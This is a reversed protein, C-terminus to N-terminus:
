HHIASLKKFDVVFFHLFGIISLVGGFVRIVNWMIEDVPKSVYVDRATNSVTYSTYGIMTGLIAGSFVDGVHHFGYSIRHISIMSAVFYALAITCGKIYPDSFQIGLFVKDDDAYSDDELYMRLSTALAFAVMTHGSPFSQMRTKGKCHSEDILKDMKLKESCGPRIRKIHNKLYLGMSFAFWHPLLHFQVPHFSQYYFMSIMAVFMGPIVYLEYPLLGLYYPAKSIIPSSNLGINQYIWKTLKEDTNM